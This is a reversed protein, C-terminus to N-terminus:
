NRENSYYEKYFKNLIELIIRLSETLKPDLEYINNNSNLAISLDCIKDKIADFTRINGKVHISQYLCSSIFFDSRSLGSLAIRADIREKEEPSVRFNIIKNRKRKHEDKNKQLTDKTQTNRRFIKDM